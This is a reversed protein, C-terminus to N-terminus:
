CQGGAACIVATVTYPPAHTFPEAQTCFAPSREQSSRAEEHLHTCSVVHSLSSYSDAQRRLALYTASCWQTRLESLVQFVPCWGGPRPSSRSSRLSNPMLAASLDKGPYGTPIPANGARHRDCHRGCEKGPLPQLSSRIAVVHPDM